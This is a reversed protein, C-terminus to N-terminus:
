VYFDDDCKLWSTCQGRACQRVCGDSIDFESLKLSVNIEPRDRRPFGAVLLSWRHEPTSAIRHWFRIHIWYTARSNISSSTPEPCGDLASSAQRAAARCSPNLRDDCHM